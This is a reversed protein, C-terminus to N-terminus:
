VYKNRKYFSTYREKKEFMYNWVAIEGCAICNDANKISKSKLKPIWNIKNLAIHYCEENNCCSIFINQIDTDNIKSFNEYKKLKVIAKDNKSKSEQRLVNDFIKEYTVADNYAEEFNSFISIKNLNNRYLNKWLCSKDDYFILWIAGRSIMFSKLNEKNITNVFEIREYNKSKLNDEDNAIIGRIPAISSPYRFGLNDSHHLLISAIMKQSVCASNLICKDIKNFRSNEIFDNKMIHSVFLTQFYGDNLVIEACFTSETSPFTVEKPRYGFIPELCFKDICLNILVDNLTRWIVKSQEVSNSVSFMECRTIEFCNICLNPQKENLYCTNWQFVQEYNSLAFNNKNLFELYSFEYFPNLVMEFNHDSLINLVLNKKNGVHSDINTKKSIIPFKVQAYKCNILKENIHSKFNELLKLGSSGWVTLGKIDTPYFIDYKTFLNENIINSM